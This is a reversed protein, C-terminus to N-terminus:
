APPAGNNPDFRWIPVGTAANLAIVHLKPTTAYMVGDIVIPNAQMESGTFSDKTDYTWAVKLQKVNAPSIQSLTTYHTHDESGGYVPWDAARGSPQAQLTTAALLLPILARSM